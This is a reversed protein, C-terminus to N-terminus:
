TKCTGFPANIPGRSRQQCLFPAAHRVHGRVASANYVYGPEEGKAATLRACAGSMCQDNDSCLATNPLRSTCIGKTTGGNNGRCYGSRCMADSWCVSGDLMGRCYYYGGYLGAFATSPGFATLRPVEKHLL